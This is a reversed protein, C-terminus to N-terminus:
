SALSHDQYNGGTSSPMPDSFVAHNVNKAIRNSNLAEVIAEGHEDSRIMRAVKKFYTHNVAVAPRDDNM